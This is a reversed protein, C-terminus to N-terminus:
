NLKPKGRYYCQVLMRNSIEDCTRMSIALALTSPLGTHYGKDAWSSLELGRPGGVGTWLGEPTTLRVFPLPLPLDIL